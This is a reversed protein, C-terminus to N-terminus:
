KLQKYKIFTRSTIYAMGIATACIIMYRSNEPDGKLSQMVAAVAPALAMWFETTKTGPKSEM